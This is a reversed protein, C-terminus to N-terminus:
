ILTCWAILCCCFVSCRIVVVAILILFMFCFWWSVFLAVCLLCLSDAVVVSNIFVVILCDYGVFLLWGCGFVCLVVAFKICGFCVFCCLCLVLSSGLLLDFVSPLVLLLLGLVLDCAFWLDWFWFVGGLWVFM